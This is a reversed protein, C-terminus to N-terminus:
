LRADVVEVREALVRVVGEADRQHQAMPMARRVERLKAADVAVAGIAEEAETGLDVLVDGWPGVVMSRGYSARKDNHAGCQAAAVVFTQTEIARARLLVEWHAKGTTVMFASPLLVVDCGAQVLPVFSEPFRMDYCTALGVTGVPTGRVVVLRDGRRTSESERWGGDVAADFLHVKRYNAVLRGRADFLLHSNYSLGRDAGAEHVGVSLWVGNDRAVGGYDREFDAIPAPAGGGAGVYDTAEPLCVFAARHETAARRVLERVRALNRAADHTSRLQVVALM